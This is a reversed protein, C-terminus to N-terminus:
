HNHTGDCYPKNSSNGCMCLAVVKQKYEITGDPHTVRMEGTPLTNDETIVAPGNENLKINTM